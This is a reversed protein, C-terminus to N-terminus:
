GPGVKPVDNFEAVQERYGRVSRPPGGGASPAVGQRLQKAERRRAMEEFRKEAQTRRDRDKAEEAPPM